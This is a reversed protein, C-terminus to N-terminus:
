QFHFQSLSKGFVVSILIAISNVAPILFLIILWWSKKIRRINVVRNWYDRILSKDRSSYIMIIAAITGSVSAVTMFVINFKFWGYYIGFVSLWLPIWTLSFDLSFFQVPKFREKLSNM